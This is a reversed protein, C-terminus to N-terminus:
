IEFREENTDKYIFFTKLFYPVSAEQKIQM